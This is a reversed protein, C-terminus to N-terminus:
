AARPRAAPEGEALVARRGAGRDAAERRAVGLGPRAVLREEVARARATSSSRSTGGGSGARARRARGRAARAGRAGRQDRQPAVERAERREDEPGRAGGELAPELALRQAPRERRVRQDAGEGAGRGGAGAVHQEVVHHALAAARAPDPGVHRAPHAAHRVRERPRREVRAGVIRRSAGTARM